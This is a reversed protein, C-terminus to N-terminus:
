SLWAAPSGVDEAERSPSILNERVSHVTMVAEPHSRLRPQTGAPGISIRPSSVVGLDYSPAARLRLVTAKQWHSQFLNQGRAEAQPIQTNKSV